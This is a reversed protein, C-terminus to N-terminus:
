KEDKWSSIEIWKTWVGNILKYFCFDSYGYEKYYIFNGFYVIAITKDRIFVPKSIIILTQKKDKKKMAERSSYNDVIDASDIMEAKWSHNNDNIIQNIIDIGEKESLTIKDNLNDKSIFTKSKKFRLKKLHFDILQYNTNELLSVGSIKIVRSEIIQNALLYDLNINQCNAYSSFFTFLFFNFNKIM